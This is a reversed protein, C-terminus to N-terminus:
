STLKFYNIFKKFGLKESIYIANKDLDESVKKNPEYFLRIEKLTINMKNFDIFIKKEQMWYALGNVCTGKAKYGYNYAM